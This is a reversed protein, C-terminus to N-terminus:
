RGPRRPTWAPRANAPKTPRKPSRPPTRPPKPTPKPMLRPKRRRRTQRTRRRRRTANRKRSVLNNLATPTMDLLLAKAKAIRAFAVEDMAALDEITLDDFTPPGIRARM